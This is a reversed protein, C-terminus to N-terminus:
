EVAQSTLAGLAGDLNKLAEDKGKIDHRHKLYDATNYTLWVKGDGDEWALAKLPLDIATTPAAEMLPTGGKPNGFILVQTPRMTLGSKQAAEAHDIRTFIMFGKATVLKDLRDLTEAVSHKSAKTVLGDGAAFASLSFAFAAIALIFKKM